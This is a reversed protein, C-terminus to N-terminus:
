PINPHADRGLLEIIPQRDWGIRFRWVDGNAAWIYVNPGRQEIARIDEGTPALFDSEIYPVIPTHKRLIKAINEEHGRFESWPKVLDRVFDTIDRAASRINM